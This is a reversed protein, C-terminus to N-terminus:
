YTIMSLFITYKLMLAPLSFAGIIATTTVLTAALKEDCKFKIAYAIVANASPMASEIFSIQRDRPSIHFYYDITYVLTPEVFLVLTVCLIITWINEFFPIRAIALGNLLAIMLVLSAGVYNAANILPTIITGQTPLDLASWLLSFIIAAVPPSLIIGYLRKLFTESPHSHNGFEKSIIYLFIYGPIGNSIEGILLAYAITSDNGNYIATIFATGLIATSGFTSCLIFVGLSPRPLKLVYKGLFYSTIGVLAEAFVIYSCTMLIQTNLKIYVLKSILLAPLVVDITLKSILPSDSNSIIGRFRLFLTVMVLIMFSATFSVANDYLNM